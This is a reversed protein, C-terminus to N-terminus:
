SDRLIKSLVDETVEGQSYGINKTRIAKASYEKIEDEALAVMPGLLDKMLTALEDANALGLWGLVNSVQEPAHKATYRLYEGMLVGNARGHPLDHYYTLSYGLSHVLTTGTHSITIGGLTSAVLLRDRDEPRFEGKRLAPICKAWLRMGQESFIDSTGTARRSLYGEVLHSLADVATDRTIPVPLNETYRWDLFAIKPFLEPVSFSRKTEAEPVTLISYPTVESGTGATTPIAVIPLPTHDFKNSYLEDPDIQNTALTAIAKAADLPSGGGIALIFDPKYRRAVEGGAAVNELSPNNEVRDFHEYGIGQSKLAEEADDLAGSLRASNKGTVLLCKKGFQRLQEAQAVLEKEGHVVKTPMFFSYSQMVM